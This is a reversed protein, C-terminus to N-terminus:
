ETPEAVEATVPETSETAPEEAAEAAVPNRSEEWAQLIASEEPHPKGHKAYYNALGHLPSLYQPSQPLKGKDDRVFVAYAPADVDALIRWARTKKTSKDTAKGDYHTVADHNSFPM